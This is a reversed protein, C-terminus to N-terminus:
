LLSQLFTTFTSIVETLNNIMDFKQYIDAGPSFADVMTNVLYASFTLIERLSSESVRPIYLFDNGKFQLINIICM